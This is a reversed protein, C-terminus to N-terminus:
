RMSTFRPPKGSSPEAAPFRMRIRPAEPPTPVQQTCSARSLPESTITAAELAVWMVGLNNSLLALLMAGLFLQYMAHYLRMRPVDLRGSQMEHGLYTLSFWATTSAVFATLVVLYINFADVQLYRGAQMPADQMPAAALLLSAGLTALTALFNLRAALRWNGVLGLLPASLLPLLVVLLAESM